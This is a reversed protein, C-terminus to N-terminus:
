GTLHDAEDGLGAIVHGLLRFQLKTETRWRPRLPSSCGM